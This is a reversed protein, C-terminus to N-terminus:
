DMYISVLIEGTDHDTILCQEFGYEYIMAKARKVAGDLDTAGLNMVLQEDFTADMHTAYVYLIEM